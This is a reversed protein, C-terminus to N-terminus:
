IIKSIGDRLRVARKYDGEVVVHKTIQETTWVRLEIELDPAATDLEGVRRIGDGPLDFLWICFYRDLAHCRLRHGPGFPVDEQLDLSHVVVTRDLRQLFFRPLRFVSAIAHAVHSM